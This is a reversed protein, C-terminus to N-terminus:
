LRFNRLCMSLQLLGKLWVTSDLLFTHPHMDHCGTPKWGTARISTRMPAWLNTSAGGPESIQVLRQSAKVGTNGSNLVYLPRRELLFGLFLFFLPLSPCVGLFIPTCWTSPMQGLGSLLPLVSQQAIYEHCHVKIYRVSVPDAGEQCWSFTLPRRLVM